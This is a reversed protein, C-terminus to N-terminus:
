VVQDPEIEVGDPCVRSGDTRALTGDNSPDQFTKAAVVLPM